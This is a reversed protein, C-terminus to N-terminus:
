MFGVDAWVAGELVWSLTLDDLKNAGGMSGSVDLVCVESFRVNQPSSAPIDGRM